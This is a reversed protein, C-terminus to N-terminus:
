YSVGCQARASPQCRRECEECGEARERRRQSGVRGRRLGVAQPPEASIRSPWRRILESKTVADWVLGRPADFERTMVIQLENPTTVKLKAAAQTV